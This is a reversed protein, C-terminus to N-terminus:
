NETENQFLEYKINVSGSGLAENLGSTDDIQGISIYYYSTHSPAYFLVLTDSAWIKLEGSKVKGPNIARGSISNPLNYYKENGNHENMRVEMPLFTVFQKAAESDNLTAKFERNAITIKLNM